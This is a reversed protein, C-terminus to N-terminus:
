GFYSDERRATISRSRRTIASVHWTLFKLSCVLRPNSSLRLARRPNRRSFHRITVRRPFLRLQTPSRLSVPHNPGQVLPPPLEMPLQSTSTRSLQSHCLPNLLRVRRSHLPSRACLEGDTVMPQLRSATAESSSRPPHGLRRTQPNPRQPPTQLELVSM